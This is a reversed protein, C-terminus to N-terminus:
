LTKRLSDVRSQDICDDHSSQQAGAETIHVSNESCKRTMVTGQGRGIRRWNRLGRMFEELNGSNGPNSLESITKLKQQYKYFETGTLHKWEPSALQRQPTPLPGLLGSSHEDSLHSTHPYSRHPTALQHTNPHSSSSTTHATYHSMTYRSGEGGPVSTCTSRTDTISFIYQGGQWHYM